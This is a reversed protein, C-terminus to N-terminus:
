ILKNMTKKVKASVNQHADLIKILAESKVPDWQYFMGLLILQVSDDCQELTV